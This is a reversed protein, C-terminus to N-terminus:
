LETLASMLRTDLHDLHTHTLPTTPNPDPRGSSVEFIQQYTRRLEHWLAEDALGSLIVKSRAWDGHTLAGPHGGNKLREANETLEARVVNIAGILERRQHRRDLSVSVRWTGGATLISGVGAGIVGAVIESAM